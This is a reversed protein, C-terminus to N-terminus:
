QRNRNSDLYYGLGQNGLKFVWGSKGGRFKRSSTFSHSKVKKTPYYLMYLIGITVLALLLIIKM